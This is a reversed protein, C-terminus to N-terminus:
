NGFSYKMGFNTLLHEHGSGAYMWKGEAMVSFDGRLQYEVGGGLTGFAGDENGNREESFFQLGGGVMLFPTIDSDNDAYWLINTGFRTVSTDLAVNNYSDSWMYDFAFQFAGPEWMSYTEMNYNYRFGFSWDDDLHTASSDFGYGGVIEVSHNYLSHDAAELSVALLAIAFVRKM